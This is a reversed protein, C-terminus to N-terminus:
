PPKARGGQRHIARSVYRKGALAAHVATVLDEGAADKLVYGFVGAALSRAVLAPEDHVTVFVVRADPHSRLILACAAMGDLGPMTIDTVIADPVFRAAAGVLADGDQVLAVIDFHPQLLKRLQGATEVHDDGLLVRPRRVPQRSDAM